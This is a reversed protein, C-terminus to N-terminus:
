LIKKTRLKTHQQHYTQSKKVTSQGLERRLIIRCSKMGTEVDPSYGCLDKINCSDYCPIRNRHKLVWVVQPCASVTYPQQRAWSTALLITYVRFWFSWCDFTNLVKIESYANVNGKKAATQQVNLQLTWNIKNSDLEQGKSAKSKYKFETKQYDCIYYNRTFSNIPLYFHGSVVIRYNIPLLYVNIFLYVILFMIDCKENRM